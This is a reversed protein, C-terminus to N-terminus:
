YIALIHSIYPVTRVGRSAMYENCGLLLMRHWPVRSARSLSALRHCIWEGFWPIWTLWKFCAELIAWFFVSHCKSVTQKNIDNEQLRFRNLLIRAINGLLYAFMASFCRLTTEQVELQPCLMAFCCWRKTKPSIGEQKNILVYTVLCLIYIYVYTYHCMGMIQQNQQTSNAHRSGSRQGKPAWSSGLFCGSGTSHHIM